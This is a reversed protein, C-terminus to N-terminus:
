LGNHGVDTGFVSIYKVGGGGVTLSAPSGLGGAGGGGGSAHNPAGGSVNPRGNEGNFGSSVWGAYLYSAKTTIGGTAGTGTNSHSGGGGSGGSAGNQPGVNAEQRSGGGGGGNALYSVGNITIKSQTGNQGIQSRTNNGIGGKGVEITCNGLIEMQSKFLLGGAGGGGGFVGGAGGGSIILIDCITYDTFNINYLSKNNINNNNFVIYNYGANYEQHPLTDYKTYLLMIEKFSLVKSYIRFNDMQGDWTEYSTYASKNIFRLNLVSNPFGQVKDVNQNVGNIYVYWKSSTDVSFVIHKWTNDAFITDVLIGTGGVGFYIQNATGYRAILM